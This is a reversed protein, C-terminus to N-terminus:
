VLFFDKEQLSLFFYLEIRNKPKRFKNVIINEEKTKNNININNNIEQEENIGEFKKYCGQFDEFKIKNNLNKNEILEKNDILYLKDLNIESALELSNLFPNSIQDFPDKISIEDYSCLSTLRFTEEFM